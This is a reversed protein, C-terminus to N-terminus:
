RVTHAPGRAPCFRGDARRYAGHAKAESARSPRNTSCSGSTARSCRCPYSQGVGTATSSSPSANRPPVIAGDHYPSPARTKRSYALPRGTESLSEVHPDDSGPSGEPQALLSGCPASVAPTAGGAFDVHRELASRASSDLWAVDNARLRQRQGEAHQHVQDGATVHDHQRSSPPFCHWSTTTSTRPWKRITYSRSATTRPFITMTTTMTASVM